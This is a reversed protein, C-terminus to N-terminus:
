REGHDDAHGARRPAAERQARGRDHHHDEARDGAPLSRDDDAAQYEHDDGEMLQDQEPLQKRAPDRQGGATDHQDTEGEGVFWAPTVEGPQAGCETPHGSGSCAGSGDYATSSRPWARPTPRTPCASSTPWAKTVGAAWRRPSRTPTSRCGRGPSGWS